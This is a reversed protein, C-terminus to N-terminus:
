PGAWGWDEKGAMPRHSSRWALAKLYFISLLPFPPYVSISLYTHSSPFLLAVKRRWRHGDYSNQSKRVWQRIKEYRKFTLLM